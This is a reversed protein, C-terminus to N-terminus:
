MITSVMTLRKRPQAVKKENKQGDTEGDELYISTVSSSQAVGEGPKDETVVIPQNSTSPDDSNDAVIESDEINEKPSTTKNYVGINISSDSPQPTTSEMKSGSQKTQISSTSDIENDLEESEILTPEHTKNPSQPPSSCIPTTEYQDGNDHTSVHHVAALKHQDSNEPAHEDECTSQNIGECDSLNADEGITSGVNTVM